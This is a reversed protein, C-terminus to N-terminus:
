ILAILSSEICALTSGYGSCTFKPRKDTLNYQSIKHYYFRLEVGHSHPLEHNTLSIAEQNSSCWYFTKWVHSVTAM